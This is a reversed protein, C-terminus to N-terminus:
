LTAEAPRAADAALKKRLAELVKKRTDVDLDLDTISFTHENGITGSHEVEIKDNYGRHRCKTKVAHIIAPTDGAAVRGIFASEFYNAKHWHIEDV